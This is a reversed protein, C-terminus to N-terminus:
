VGALKSAEKLCSRAIGDTPDFHAAQECAAAARRSEVKALKENQKSYHDRARALLAEGLIRYAHDLAADTNVGELTPPNGNRLLDIAHMANLEAGTTNDMRAMAEGLGAYAEAFAPAKELAMKFQAAAQMFKKDEMYASANRYAEIAVARRNASTAHGAPMDMILPRRVERAHDDFPPALSPLVGAVTLCACAFVGSTIWVDWHRPRGNANCHNM